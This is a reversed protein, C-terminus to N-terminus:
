RTPRRILDISGDIRHPWVVCRLHCIVYVIPRCVCGFIIVRRRLGSCTGDGGIFQCSSPTSHCQEGQRDHWQFALCSAACITARYDASDRLSVTTSIRSSTQRTMRIVDDLTVGLAVAWNLQDNYAGSREAERISSRSRAFGTGIGSFSPLRPRSDFKYSSGRLHISLILVFCIVAPESKSIKTWLILTNNCQVQLVMTSIAHM